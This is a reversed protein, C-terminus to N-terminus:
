SQGRLHAVLVVGCLCTSISNAVPAYAPDNHALPNAEIWVAMIGNQDVHKSDIAWKATQDDIGAYRGTDGLLVVRARHMGDALGIDVIDGLEVSQGDEYKM